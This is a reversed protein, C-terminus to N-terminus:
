PMTECSSTDCALSLVSWPASLSQVGQVKVLSEQLSTRDQLRTQFRGEEHCLQEALALRCHFCPLVAQFKELDHICPFCDNGVANAKLEM